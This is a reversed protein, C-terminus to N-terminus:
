RRGVRLTLWAALGGALGGLAGSLWLPWGAPGQMEWISRWSLWRLWWGPCTYLQRLLMRFQDIANWAPLGLSWGALNGLVHAAIARRRTVPSYLHSRPRKWCIALIAVYYAIGWTYWLRLFLDNASVGHYREEFKLKTNEDLRPPAVAQWSLVAETGTAIVPDRNPM